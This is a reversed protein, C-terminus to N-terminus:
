FGWFLKKANELKSNNVAVAYGFIFGVITIFCNLYIGVWKLCAYSKVQDLNGDIVRPM